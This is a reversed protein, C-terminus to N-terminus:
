ETRYRAPDALDLVDDAAQTREASSPEVVAASLAAKV